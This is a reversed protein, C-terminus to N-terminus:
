QEGVAKRLKEFDIKSAHSLLSAENCESGFGSMYIYFDNFPIELSSSPYQSDNYFRGLGKKLTPPIKLLKESKPDLSSPSNIRAEVNSTMSPSVYIIISLYNKYEKDKKYYRGVNFWGDMGSTNIYDDYSDMPQLGNIEAPLAKLIEKGAHNNLNFLAQSVSFRVEKFNGIKMYEMAEKLFNEAVVTPNSQDNSGPTQDNFPKM